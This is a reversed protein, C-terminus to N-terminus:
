ALQPSFLGIEIGGGANCNISGVAVDIDGIPSAVHDEDQILFAAQNAFDALAATSAVAGGFECFRRLEGDARAFEEHQVCAIRPDLNEIRSATKQPLYIQDVSVTVGTYRDVALVIEVDAIGREIANLDEAGISRQKGCEIGGCDASRDEGTRGSEPDCGAM